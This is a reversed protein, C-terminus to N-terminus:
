KLRMKSFIVKPLIDEKKLSQFPYTSKHINKNKPRQSGEPQRTYIVAKERV